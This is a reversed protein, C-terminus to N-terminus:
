LRQSWRRGNGLMDARTVMIVMIVMIVIAETMDANTGVTMGAAIPKPALLTASGVKSM